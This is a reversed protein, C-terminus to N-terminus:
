RENIKEKKNVSKQKTYKTDLKKINKYTFYGVLIDSIVVIAAVMIRFGLKKADTLVKNARKTM